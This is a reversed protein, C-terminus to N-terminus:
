ATTAGLQLRAVSRRASRWAQRLWAAPRTATRGARETVQVQTPVLSEILTRGRGFAAEGGARLVADDLEGEATLWVAGHLVRVRGDRGGDFILVQDHDLNITTITEATPRMANEMQRACRYARHSRNFAIRGRCVFSFIATSPHTRRM